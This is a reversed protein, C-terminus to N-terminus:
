VEKLKPNLIVDMAHGIMAFSLAVLAVMLGPPLIWWWYGSVSAGYVQADHLMWGWTPVNPDGLGLFDLSVETLIAGPVGLAVQAATYPMVQPLVHKFMIWFPGAGAAKAALVYGENKISLVMSRVVKAVGMWSFVAILLIIVILSPKYIIALLILLPLPPISYWTELLRQMVKDVKGGVYASVLGYVTGWLAAILSTLVGILLGYPLGIMTFTFVDRGFVDTGMLGYVNGDLILKSTVNVRGLGIVNVIIKYNGKLVKGERDTFLLQTVPVDSRSAWRYVNNKIEDYNNFSITSPLDRASAQLLKVEEGDPRVVKVVVAPPTEYSVKLILKIDNPVGGYRYSLEYEETVNSVRGGYMVKLTEHTPATEFTPVVKDPYFMQGFWSPPVASPYVSWFTTNRWLREYGSFATLSYLALALLVVFTLTGFLGSSQSLLEKLFENM